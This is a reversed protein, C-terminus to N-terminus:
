LPTLENLVTNLAVRTDDLQVISAQQAALADRNKIATLIAKHRPLTLAQLNPRHSSFKISERLAISLMNSLYVLLDNHTAEAIRRHFDLDPQLMVARSTAAEMRTYAEEIAAIDEANATSAAMACVAPEIICRVGVLTSFFESQPTSEVLWYLVDPDLMHWDRRPKVLTGVRPKSAVLGKAVLVRIAERVVPRSVAYEECLVAEQPLKEDPQLQGSVIRMGLEQVINAHRSKRPKPQKYDM